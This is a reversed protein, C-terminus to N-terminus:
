GHFKEIIFGMVEDFRESTISDEGFTAEYHLKDEINVPIISGFEFQVQSPVWMKNDIFQVFQKISDHIGIYEESSETLGEFAKDTAMGCSNCQYADGAPKLTQAGCCPCELKIDM